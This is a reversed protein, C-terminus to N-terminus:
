GSASPDQMEILPERRPAISGKASDWGGHLWDQWAEDEFPMVVPMSACGLERPLGQADRTLLAFAPVEEDKWVGALAFVSGSEKGAKPAFWHRLRRGEYDTGSGWLMFATAPILCRFESNRLNGIWFPSDVNRVSTIRRMPDDANPPPLVGWLRPTIRPTLRAGAPRPGAIYERGATVVPAFKMPAVYGGEWPDDGVRAGFAEAIDAASCDLRYLQTM